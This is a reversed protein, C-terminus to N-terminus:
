DYHHETTRTPVRHLTAQQRLQSPTLTFRKKFVKSFHSQDSFGYRLAIELLPHQQRIDALARQLRRELVYQHPTLAFSQKFMRAFHYTSLGVQEALGGIRLPQELHAEIYAIVHKKAYPALGGTPASRTPTGVYRAVLYHLLNDTLTSLLLQDAKAQWNLSLLSQQCLTSIWRDESFTLDPLSGHLTRNFSDESIKTLQAQDFYLHLFALEGPVDWASQHAAPMLCIKGPAGGTRRQRGEIRATDYGGKLYVSLTHHRPAQYQTQDAQNAWVALGLGNTLKLERVLQARSKALHQFVERQALNHNM